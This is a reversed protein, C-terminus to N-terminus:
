SSQGYTWSSCGAGMLAVTCCGLSPCSLAHPVAWIMIEASQDGMGETGAMDSRADHAPVPAGLRDALRVYLRM